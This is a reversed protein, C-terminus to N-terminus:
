FKVVDRKAVALTMDLTPLLEACSHKAAAPVHHQRCSENAPAGIVLTSDPARIPPSHVQPRAPLATHTNLRQLLTCNGGRRRLEGEFQGLQALQSLLIM